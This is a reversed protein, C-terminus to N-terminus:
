LQKCAIHNQNTVENRLAEPGESTFSSNDNHINLLMYICM